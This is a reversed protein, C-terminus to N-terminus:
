LWCVVFVDDIKSLLFKRFLDELEETVTTLPSSKRVWEWFVPELLHDQPLAREIAKGQSSLIVAVEYLCQINQSLIKNTDAAVLCYSYEFIPFFKAALSEPSTSVKVFFANGMAKVLASHPITAFGSLTHAVDLLISIQQKESFYKEKAFTSLPQVDELVIAPYQSNPLCYVGHIQVINDHNLQFCSRLYEFYHSTNVEIPCYKIILCEKARYNVRKLMCPSVDVPVVDLVQVEHVEHQKLDKPM